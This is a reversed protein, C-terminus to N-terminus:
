LEPPDRATASVDARLADYMERSRRCVDGVTREPPRGPVARGSPIVSALIEREGGGFPYGCEDAARMKAADWSSYKGLMAEDVVLGEMYKRSLLGTDGARVAADVEDLAKQKISLREAAGEGLDSRGGSGRM